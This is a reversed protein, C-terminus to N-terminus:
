GWNCCKEKIKKGLTLKKTEKKKGEEIEKLKKTTIVQLLEEICENVGTGDKASGEFFKVKNKSAYEQVMDTPVEKPELDTKNGFVILYESPINSKNNIEDLWYKLSEFSSLSTVDYVLLIGDSNKYYSSVVSRFREQGSTDNLVLKVKYNQYEYTKSKAEVGITSFFTESFENQTIRNIVSSKGVSTDGITLVRVVIEEM